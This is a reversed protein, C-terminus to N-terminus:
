DFSVVLSQTEKKVPEIKKKEEEEEPLIVKIKRMRRPKPKDDEIIIEENDYEKKEEKSVKIFKNYVKSRGMCINRWTNLNIQTYKDAIEDITNHSSKLIEENTIPNLVSVNWIHKLKYM